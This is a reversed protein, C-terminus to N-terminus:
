AGEFLAIKQGPMLRVFAKKWYQVRGAGYKNRKARNRCVTTNVSSVKVRFTKEVANKIDTKNARRDVEFIYVGTEGLISNKESVLPKKIVEIM